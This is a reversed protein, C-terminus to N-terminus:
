PATERRTEAPPALQPLLQELGLLDIFEAPGANAALWGRHIATGIAALLQAERAAAGATREAKPRGVLRHWRAAAKATIDCVTALENREERTALHGRARLTSAAGDYLLRGDANLKTALESFQDLGFSPAM